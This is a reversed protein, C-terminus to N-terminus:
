NLCKRLTSNCNRVASGDDAESGQRWGQWCLHVCSIVLTSLLMLRTSETVTTLWTGRDMTNGLCSCQLPNGNGDGPSRGSGPILGVDKIDGANAPLNKVVLAVQSVWDIVLCTTLLLNEYM